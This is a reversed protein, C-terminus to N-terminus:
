VEVGYARLARNIAEVYQQHAKLTAEAKTEATDVVRNYRGDLISWQHLGDHRVIYHGTASQSRLTRAM